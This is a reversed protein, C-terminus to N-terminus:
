GDDLGTTVIGASELDPDLLPGMEAQVEAIRSRVQAIVEPPLLFGSQEAVNAVFEAHRDRNGPANNFSCQELRAAGSSRVLVLTRWWGWTTSAVHLVTLLTGPASVGEIQLGDIVPQVRRIGDWALTM